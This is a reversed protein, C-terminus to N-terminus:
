EKLQNKLSELIKREGSMSADNFNKSYDFTRVSNKQSDEWYDAVTLAILEQKNLNLLSLHTDHERSGGGTTKIFILTDNGSKVRGLEQFLMGRIKFKNIKGDSASAIIELEEFDTLPREELAKLELVWSKDSKVDVVKIKCSIPYAAGRWDAGSTVFPLNHAQIGMDIDEISVNPETCMARGIALVLMTVLLLFLKKM